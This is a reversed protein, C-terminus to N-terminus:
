TLSVAGETWDIWERIPSVLNPCRDPDVAEHLPLLIGLERSRVHEEDISQELVIKVLLNSDDRTEVVSEVAILWTGKSGDVDTLEIPLEKPSSLLPLIASM